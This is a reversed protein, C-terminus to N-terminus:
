GGDAGLVLGTEVLLSGLLERQDDLFRRTDDPGLRTDVWLNKELLTGWRPDALSSSVLDDHEAVAQDNIGPPAVLGRWTGLHCDVSLEAWSPVRAFRGALRRPSTVALALLSGDDLEPQASVASVMAADANDALLDALAHRASEFVRLQLAAVDVRAHRALMALALHNINGRATAFSTTVAGAALGDLYGMPDDYGSSPTVVLVSYETYLLAIPTLLRYDLDSDGLLTNTIL